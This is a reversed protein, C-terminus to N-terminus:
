KAEARRKLTYIMNNLGFMATDHDILHFLLETCGTLMSTVPENKFGLKLALAKPDNLGHDPDSLGGEFLENFGLSMMEYKAANCGIWGPAVVRGAHFSVRARHLAPEPHPKLERNAALWPADEAKVVDWSGAFVEQAAAPLACTGAFLAFLLVMRM